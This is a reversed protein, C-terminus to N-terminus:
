FRRRDLVSYTSLAFRFKSKENPNYQTPPQRQEISSINIRKEKTKSMHVVVGVGDKSDISPKTTVPKVTGTERQQKLVHQVAKAVYSSRCVTSMWVTTTRVMLEPTCAILDVHVDRRVGRVQAHRSPEGRSLTPVEIVSQLPSGVLGEHLKTLMV